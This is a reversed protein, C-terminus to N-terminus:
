MTEDVVARSRVISVTSVLTRGGCKWPLLLREYRSRRPLRGPAQIVADVLELRPRCSRSVEHYGVASREGYALDPQLELDNGVALLTWCPDYVQYGPGFHEVVARGREHSTVISRAPFRETAMWDSAFQGKRRKWDALRSRLASRQPMDLRSVHLKESFFVAAEPPLWRSRLRLRELADEVSTFLLVGATGEPRDLAIRSPELGALLMCLAEFSALSLLEPRLTLVLVRPLHKVRVFGLNRVAYADVDLDAAAGLQKRLQPSGLPWFGGADDILLHTWTM